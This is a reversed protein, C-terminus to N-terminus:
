ADRPLYFYYQSANGDAFGNAVINRHIILHFFSWDATPIAGSDIDAEPMNGVTRQRGVQVCVLITAKSRSPGNAFPQNGAAIGFLQRWNRITPQASLM